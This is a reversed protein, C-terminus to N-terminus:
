PATEHAVVAQMSRLRSWSLDAVSQDCAVEVCSGSPEGRRLIRAGCNTNEGAGFEGEILLKLARPNAEKTPFHFRDLVSCGDESLNVFALGACV